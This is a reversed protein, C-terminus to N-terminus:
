CSVSSVAGAYHVIGFQNHFGIKPTVFNRHGAVVDPDERKSDPGSVPGFLKHLHSVFKGDKESASGMGGWADDLTNM